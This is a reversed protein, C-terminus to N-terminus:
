WGKEFMRAVEAIRVEDRRYRLRRRVRRARLLGIATLLALHREAVPRALGLRAAVADATVGDARPATHRGAPLDVAPDKLWELIELRVGTVPNRLM